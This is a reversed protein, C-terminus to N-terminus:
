NTPSQSPSQPSPPSPARKQRRQVKPVIQVSDPVSMSDNPNHLTNNITLDNNPESKIRENLDEISVVMKTPIKCVRGLEGPHNGSLTKDAALVIFKKTKKVLWGRSEVLCDQDAFAVADKEAMWTAGDEADRWVVSVFPKEKSM